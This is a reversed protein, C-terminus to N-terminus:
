VPRLVWITRIISAAGDTIVDIKAANGVLEISFASGSCAAPVYDTWYDFNSGGDASQLIRLGSAAKLSANAFFLGTLRAFGQTPFSGSTTSGAAALSAGAGVYSWATNAKQIYVKSM